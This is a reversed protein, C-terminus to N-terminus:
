EDMSREVPSARVGPRMLTSVQTSSMIKLKKRMLGLRVSTSKPCSTDTHPRPQPTGPAASPVASALATPPTSASDRSSNRSPTSQM